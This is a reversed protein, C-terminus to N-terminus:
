LDHSGRRKDDREMREDSNRTDKRERIKIVLDERGGGDRVLKKNLSNTTEVFLKVLGEKVRKKVPDGGSGKAGRGWYGKERGLKSPDGTGEDNFIAM